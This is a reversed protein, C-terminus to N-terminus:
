GLDDPFYLLGSYMSLPTMILPPELVEVKPSDTLPFWAPIQLSATVPFINDAM